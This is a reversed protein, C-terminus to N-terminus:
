MLIADIRTRGNDNSRSSLDRCPEAETKVSSKKGEPQEGFRGVFVDSAGVDVGLWLRWFAPFSACVKRHCRTMDAIKLWAAYYCSGSAFSALLRLSLSIFVFAVHYFSMEGEVGVVVFIKGVCVVETPASHHQAFALAPVFGLLNGPCGVLTAIDDFFM